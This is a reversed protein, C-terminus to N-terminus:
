GAVSIFHMSLGDIGSFRRTIFLGRYGKYSWPTPRRMEVRGRSSGDDERMRKAYSLLRSAELRSRLLGILCGIVVALSIANRM